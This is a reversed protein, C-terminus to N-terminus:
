LLAKEIAQKAKDCYDRGITDESLDRDFIFLMNKLAELLEPAAAILKANAEAESKEKENWETSLSWDVLYSCRAIKYNGGLVSGVINFATKSDSHRVNWKGKTGKFEKM